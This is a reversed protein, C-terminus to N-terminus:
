PNVGETESKFISDMLDEEYEKEYKQKNKLQELFATIKQLERHPQKASLADVLGELSKILKEIEGENGTRNCCYLIYDQVNVNSIRKIINKNSRLRWKSKKIIKRVSEKDSKCKENAEDISTATTVALSEGFPAVEEDDDNKKLMEYLVNEVERAMKRRRWWKQPSGGGKNIIRRNRTKNRRRNKHRTKNLTKNRRRTKYRINNRRKTKNVIKNSKKM